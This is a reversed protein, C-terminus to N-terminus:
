TPPTSDPPFADPPIADPSKADTPFADLSLADPSLADPLADLPIAELKQSNWENMARLALTAVIGVGIAAVLAGGLAWLAAQLACGEDCQLDGFAYGALAGCIGAVVIGSFALLQAKRSPAAPRLPDQHGSSQTPSAGLSGNSSAGFNGGSSAGFSGNSSAGFNGASGSGSNERPNKSSESNAAM